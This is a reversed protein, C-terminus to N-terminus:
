GHVAGVKLSTYRLVVGRTYRDGPRRVARLEELHVATGTAEHIEELLQGITPNTLGYDSDVVHADVVLQGGPPLVDFAMGLRVKRDQPTQGGDPLVLVVADPSPVPFAEDAPAAVVDDLATVKTASLRAIQRNWCRADGDLAVLPTSTWPAKGDTGPDGHLGIRLEEAVTSCRRFWSAKRDALDALPGLSAVISRLVGVRDAEMSVVWVEDPVDYRAALAAKIEPRSVVIRDFSTARELLPAGLLDVIADAPLDAPLVAVFPLGPNLGLLGYHFSPPDILLLLDAQGVQERIAHRTASWEDIGGPWAGVLRGTWACITGAIADTGEACPAASLDGVAFTIGPIDTARTAHPPPIVHTPRPAPAVVTAETTVTPVTVESAETTM